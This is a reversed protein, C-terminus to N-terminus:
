PKRSRVAAVVASARAVAEDLSYSPTTGSMAAIARREIEALDEASEIARGSDGADRLLAAEIYERDELPLARLQQLLDDRAAM